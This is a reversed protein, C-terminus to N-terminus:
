LNEEIILNFVLESVKKHGYCNWHGDGEIYWNNFPDLIIKNKIKLKEINSILNDNNSNIVFILENLNYKSNIISILNKIYSSNSTNQKIVNVELKNIAFVGKLYLYYLIKINYLIKKLVPYRIRVKELQGSVVNIQLRDPLRSINSISEEIDNQNIFIITKYPNVIAEYKKKFELAEILTIGSRGIEFVGFTEGLKEKLLYGQNCELPNMINEIMSDGIILIQNEFNTDSLGLFGYKNVKWKNESFYGSQNIIYTQLGNQDIKRQPM